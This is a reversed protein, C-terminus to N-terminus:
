LCPHGGSERRAIPYLQLGRRIRAITSVRISAPAYSQAILAVGVPAPWPCMTAKTANFRPSTTAFTEDISRLRLHTARMRPLLGIEQVLPTEQKELHAGPIPGRGPRGAAAGLAATLAPPVQFIYRAIPDRASMRGHAGGVRPSPSIRLEAPLTTDLHRGVSGGPFDQGAALGFLDTAEM